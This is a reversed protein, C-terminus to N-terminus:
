IIPCTFRGASSVAAISCKSGSQAKKRNYRVQDIRYDDFGVEYIPSIRTSQELYYFFNDVLDSPSCSNMDGINLIGNRCAKNGISLQSSMALYAASITVDLLVNIIDKCSIIKCIENESESHIELM